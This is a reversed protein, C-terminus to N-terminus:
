FLLQSAFTFLGALDLFSEFPGELSKTKRLNRLLNLKDFETLKEKGLQRFRPKQKFKVLPLEGALTM